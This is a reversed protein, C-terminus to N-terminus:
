FDLNKEKYDVENIIQKRVKEINYENNCIIIRTPYYVYEEITKQEFKIILECLLNEGEPIKKSNSEKFSIFLNGEFREIIEQHKMNYIKKDGKLQIFVPKICLREYQNTFSDKNEFYLVASTYNKFNQSIYDVFKNVSCFSQAEM